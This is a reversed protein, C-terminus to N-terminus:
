IMEEGGRAREFGSGGVGFGLCQSILWAHNFMLSCHVWDKMDGERGVPVKM